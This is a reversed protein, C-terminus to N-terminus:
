KLFPLSKTTVDDHASVTDTELNINHTFNKTTVGHNLKLTTASFGEEFQGYSMRVVLHRYIAVSLLFSM